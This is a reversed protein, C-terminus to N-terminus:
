HLEILAAANGKFGDIEVQRYDFGIDPNRKINIHIADEPILEEIKEAWEIVCVGEGGIYEDGGIAIIEEPGEIRYVDFHYLPLRGDRYEKIITFTPSTISEKVGLGRAIGKSFVTKGAGLDGDLTIVDGPKLFTSLKEAIKITEYESNTEVKFM